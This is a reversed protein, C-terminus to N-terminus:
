SLIINFIYHMCNQNQINWFFSERQSGASEWLTQFINVSRFVFNRIEFLNLYIKLVYFNQAHPANIHIDSEIIANMLTNRLKLADDIMLYRIPSSAVSNEYMCHIECWLAGRTRNLNFIDVKMIGLLISSVNKLMYHKINSCAM